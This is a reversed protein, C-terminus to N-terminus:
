DLDPTTEVEARMADEDDLQGARARAANSWGTPSPDPCHVCRHEGDHGHSLNCVWGHTPCAWDGNDHCTPTFNPM